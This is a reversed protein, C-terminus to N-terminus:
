ARRPRRRRVAAFSVQGDLHPTKLRADRVGFGIGDGNGSVTEEAFQVTAPLLIPRRFAVTVTYPGRGGRGTLQPGLAALCRAKTWMGHAIATPFGFLRATLPHVHIPNLDGSVWGYRRGLDGKLKWTATAPLGEASPPEGTRAGETGGKGRKLNASSEEWVLEEGVRAETRIAFQRGRPHPELPTAWVRLSLLESANIPRHVTITNAIHVLGIAPLPFEGDTMLALHMGFALMHPYTPPLTDSLDFGCVRDYAALRARDVAVDTRTLTIDPVRGGEGGGGGVFPLRSAGPLMGVGARAFLPLMSPEATLERESM